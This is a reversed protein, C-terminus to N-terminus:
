YYLLLVFRPWYTRNQKSCGLVGWHVFGHCRYHIMRMMYQLAVSNYPANETLSDRSGKPPTEGHTNHPLYKKAPPLHCVKLASFEKPVATYAAPCTETSGQFRRQHSARHSPKKPPWRSSPRHAALFFAAQASERDAREGGDPPPNWGAGRKQRRGRFVMALCAAVKKGGSGRCRSVTESYCCWRDRKPDDRAKCHKTDSGWSPTRTRSM